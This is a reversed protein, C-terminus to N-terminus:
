STFRSARPKGMSWCARRPISTSRRTSARPARARRPVGAQVIFGGGISYYEERALVQMAADHATFRM